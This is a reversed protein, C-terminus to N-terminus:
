PCPTANITITFIKCELAYFDLWYEEYGTPLETCQVAEYLGPAVQISKGAPFPTTGVVYFIYESMGSQPFHYPFTPNDVTYTYGTTGNVLRMQKITVGSNNYVTVFPGCAPQDKKIDEGPAIKFKRTPPDNHSVFASTLGLLMLLVTIRTISMKIM